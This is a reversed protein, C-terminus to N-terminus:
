RRSRRPACAADEEARVASCAEVTDLADVHLARQERTDEPRRLELDVLGALVRVHVEGVQPRGRGVVQAALDQAPRATQLTGFPLARRRACLTSGAVRGEARGCVRGCARGGVAVGTSGATAPATRRGPNPENTSCRAVSNADSNAHRGRRSRRRPRDHLDVRPAQDSRRQQAAVREEQDRRRHRDHDADRRRALVEQQESQERGHEARHNRSLRM